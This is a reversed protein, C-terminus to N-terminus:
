YYNFKVYGRTKYYKATVTTKLGDNLRFDLYIINHTHDWTVTGNCKAWTIDLIFDEEILYNKLEEELFRTDGDFYIDAIEDSIAIELNMVKEATEKDMDVADNANSNIETLMKEREMESVAKAVNDESPVYEATNEKEVFFFVATIAAAAILIIGIIKRNRM